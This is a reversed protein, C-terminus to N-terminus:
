SCPDSNRDLCLVYTLYARSYLSFVVSHVNSNHRVQQNNIPDVGVVNHIVVGLGSAVYDLASTTGDRAAITNALNSLFQPLGRPSTDPVQESIASIEDEAVNAVKEDADETVNKGNENATDAVPTETEGQVATDAQSEAAPNGSPEETAPPAQPATYVHNEFGGPDM